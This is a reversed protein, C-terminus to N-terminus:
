ARASAAHSAMARAPARGRVEIGTSGSFEALISELRSPEVAETLVLCELFLRLPDEQIGTVERVQALSMLGREFALDGFRVNLDTQSAVVYVVDRPTIYGKMVEYTRKAGASLPNAAQAQLAGSTGIALVLACALIMRNVATV